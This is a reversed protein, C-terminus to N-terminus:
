HIPHSSTKFPALLALSQSLVRNRSRWLSTRQNAGYRGQGEHGKWQIYILDDEDEEGEEARLGQLVLKIM